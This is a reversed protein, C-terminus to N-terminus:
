HANLAEVTEHATEAGSGMLVVVHEADPAGVYDFLHYSRGVIKEFKGMVNQVITPCALYYPNVTERGQFYVDPNQASGRLVPHDPSLARERHAHVMDDSIM